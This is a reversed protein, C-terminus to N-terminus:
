VYLRALMLMQMLLLKRFDFMYKKFFRNEDDDHYSARVRHKSHFCIDVLNSKGCASDREMCIDVLNSMGCASDREM